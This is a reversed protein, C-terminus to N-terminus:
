IRELTTVLENMSEIIADAGQLASATHTTTIAICVMGASKASAIGTNTDELVACLTSQVGINEAAKLYVDPAPKGHELQHASVIATFMSSPISLKKLALEIEELSSSSAIGLPMKDALFYIAEFLGEAPVVSARSFIDVYAKRKKIISEQPSIPLLFDHILKECIETDRSGMYHSKFTDMTICHGFEELLTNFAALQFPESDLMVGDLDFIFAKCRMILTYVFIILFGAALRRPFKQPNYFFLFFGIAGM